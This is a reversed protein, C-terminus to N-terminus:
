EDQLLCCPFNHLSVLYSARDHEMIGIRKLQPVNYPVRDECHIVYLFQEYHNILQIGTSIIQFMSVSDINTIHTLGKAETAECGLFSCQPLFLLHHYYTIALPGIKKIELKRASECLGNEM